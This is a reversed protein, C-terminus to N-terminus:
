TAFFDDLLLLFFSAGGGGGEGSLTCRSPSHQQKRMSEVSGAAASVIM